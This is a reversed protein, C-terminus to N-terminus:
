PGPLARTFSDPAFGAPARGLLLALLERSTGTIAEDADADAATCSASRVSDGDVTVVQCTPGDTAQLLWSRQVTTDAAAANPRRRNLWDLRWPLVARVFTDSWPGLGIGVDTGHVEVETLRMLPLYSLAIPGLDANGTPETVAITWDDIDTWAGALATSADRLSRVVDSPSEGPRSELTSPRQTTRGEPYYATPQGDLADRTMRTLAEAGYRLHCAITLRSWGPLRSPADLDTRGLADVLTHTARDVADLVSRHLISGWKAPADEVSAPPSSRAGRGIGIKQLVRLITPPFIGPEGEVIFQRVFM